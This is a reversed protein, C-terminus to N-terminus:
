QAPIKLVMGAKLPSSAGQPLVDRNADVIARVRANTAGGYVKGAIAWLGERAGVTYTRAAATGPTAAPKTPATPKSLPRNARSASANPAPVVPEPALPPTELPALAIPSPDPTATTVPSPGRSSGPENLPVRIANTPRNSDFATRTAALEARLQQNERKLNEMQELNDLRGSQSELPQGALSSAYERGAALMQQKVLPAQHSNPQQELYKRFHHIAELPDHHYKMLIIGAELHSEASAQEGRKEIVKLFATLAEHTRDQRLLQQGERYGPEDTEALATASNDRGCGAFLLALLGGAILVSIQSRVSM